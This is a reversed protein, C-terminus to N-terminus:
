FAMIILYHLRHIRWWTKSKEMLRKEEEEFARIEADEDNEGDTELNEYESDKAEHGGARCNCLM